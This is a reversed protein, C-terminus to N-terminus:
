CQINASNTIPNEYTTQITSRITKENICYLYMIFILVFYHHGILTWATPLFGIHICIFKMYLPMTKSKLVKIVIYYTLVLPIIGYRVWVGIMGIDDIFIGGYALEHLQRGGYNHMSLFGNGFIASLLGSNYYNFFYDVAMWRNYDKDGLQETTENIFSLWVDKTQAFFVIVAVIFTFIIITKYTRKLKIKYIFTYAMLPLAFLLLARQSALLIVTFTILVKILSKSSFKMAMEYLFIYFAFTIIRVAYISYGGFENTEDIIEGRISERFTVQIFGTAQGIWVCLATITLAFFATSISKLTPKIYLMLPLYLIWIHHRYLLISTKFDQGWFNYAMIISMVLALVVTWFMNMGYSHKSFRNRKYFLIFGVLWLLGALIIQSNGQLFNLFPIQMGSQNVMLVLYLYISIKTESNM